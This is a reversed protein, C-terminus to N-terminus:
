IDNIKKTIWYPLENGETSGESDATFIRSLKIHAALSAPGPTWPTLYSPPRCIIAEWPLPAISLRAEPNFEGRMTSVDLPYVGRICVGSVFLVPVCLSDVSRIWIIRYVYNICVVFTCVMCVCLPYVSSIYVVSATFLYVIHICM